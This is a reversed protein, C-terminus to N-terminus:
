EEFKGDGIFGSWDPKKYTSPKVIKGALNVVVWGNEIQRIKSGKAMLADERKAQEESTILKTMNSEFIQNIVYEPDIGHAQMGRIATWLIDGYADAMAVLDRYEIADKLENVEESILQHNFIAENYSVYDPMKKLPLGFTKAWTTIKEIINM